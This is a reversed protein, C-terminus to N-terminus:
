WYETAHSADALGATLAARMVLRFSCDRGM